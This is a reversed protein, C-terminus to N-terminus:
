PTPAETMFDAILAAPNADSTLAFMADPDFMDYLVVPVPRGLAAVIRGSDHLHRAAGVCM